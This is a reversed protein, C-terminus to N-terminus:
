IQIGGNTILHNFTPSPTAGPNSTIHSLEPAAMLNGDREGQLDLPKPEALSNEQGHGM